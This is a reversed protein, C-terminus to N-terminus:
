SARRRIQRALGRAKPVLRLRDLREYPRLRDGLHDRQDHAAALESEIAAVRAALRDCLGEARALASRLADREAHAETLSRSLEGREWILGNREDQLRAICAKDHEAGRAAFAEAEAWRAQDARRDADLAAFQARQWEVHRNGEEIRDVLAITSARQFEDLCNVPTSLRAAWHGLDDRLYIRNIGNSAAFTYGRSLLDPEWPDPRERRTTPDIAEILLVKPRWRDFPAGRLVAAEHSEVDISLLDPEDLGHRDVLGALTEVPVPYSRVAFSGGRHAEAVAAELTSFGSQDEVNTVEFFELTGPTDSIAIALNLDGPRDREFLAHQRAIPEVNVGRWGRLYFFYTNSDLTPHNAGIDVYTGVQGAFLRDLWVDEGNQAYSVRPLDRPPEALPRPPRDIM